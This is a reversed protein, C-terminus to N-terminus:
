KRLSDAASFVKPQGTSIESHLLQRHLNNLKVKDYDVIGIRGACISLVIYM